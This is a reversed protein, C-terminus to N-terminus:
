IMDNQWAVAGVPANYYDMLYFRQSKAARTLRNGGDANEMDHMQRGQRWAGPIVQHNDDEQDLLANQLGPYRTRMLNHLCCSAMVMTIVTEPKQRVVGLLFGFRNSLIGFANEVIRRARSLRYNFIRQEDTMQRTSFPKMLWTRLPFADDGIIFYPMDRDDGPLPEPAPFRITGNEITEKLESQNFVTCDSASGNAGVDVWIFKYDADVLAFLIISNFGKYNYYLSGANEPCKISVHKGDLAGVAHHFNWRSGFQDSIRKWEEPTTPIPMVEASYEDIIAQCVEPIFNSITNDAVRFGYMLSKYSDGTALHRLTIALKLGPDLAKRWWTDKKAIRPGVRAALEQFMAPEMRVFNRFAGVDEERLEVMLQEFQGHLPRRLLWPRVWWRKAKRDRAGRQRGARLAQAIALDNEVADVELQVMNQLLQLRQVPALIM